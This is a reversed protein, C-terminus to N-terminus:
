KVKKANLSLDERIKSDEWNIETGPIGKYTIQSFGYVAGITVLFSTAIELLTLGLYSGNHEIVNIMSGWFVCFLIAVIRRIDSDKIRRNIIDIIFTVLFGSLTLLSGDM